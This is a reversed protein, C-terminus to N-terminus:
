NVDKRKKLQMKAADDLAYRRHTRHHNRHRCQCRSIVDALKM